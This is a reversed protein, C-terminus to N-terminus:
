ESKLQRDFIDQNVLRKKRRKFVLAIFIFLLIVGVIGNRIFQAGYSREKQDKQEEDANQLFAILSFVESESLPNEKYGAGMVPFPPSSLIAKLGAPGTRSFSKTLNSALTGGAAIANSQVDHCALCSPGGNEFQTLGQFLQQGMAVDAETAAELLTVIEPEVSAGGAATGANGSSVKIFDIIKQIDGNGLSSSPMPMNNFKEFVAKAEADGSKILSQSDKIFKILWDNSRIKSVGKLDPGMLNGGGITHCASCSTKYLPNGVHADLEAQSANGSQAVEKKVSEPPTAIKASTKKSPNKEASVSKLYGIILKIQAKKFPADPMVVTKFDKFAAVADPDGAKVMANASKIFKELWEDSKSNTIGLLDSGVRPGEGLTHCGVCVQNYFARGEHKGLESQPLKEALVSAPFILTVTIIIFAWLRSDM